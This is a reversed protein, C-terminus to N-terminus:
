NAGQESTLSKRLRQVASELGALAVAQEGGERHAMLGKFGHVAIIKADESSYGADRLSGEFDRITNAVGKVGSVMAEANAPFTVLSVEWLSLKKLHRIRKEQDYYDELVMFGISLGNLAGQKLLSYAERGQQVDLNLQGKVKLGHADESVETYVGIPEGSRHQWLLAPMRKAISEAFAGKDVIENYSDEVGFVSGYGEFTGSDGDVAKINANFQLVKKQTM